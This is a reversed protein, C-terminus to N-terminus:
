CNCILHILQATLTWMAAWLYNQLRVLQLHEGFCAAWSEWSPKDSNGTSLVKAFAAM